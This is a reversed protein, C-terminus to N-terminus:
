DEPEIRTGISIQIDAPLARRTPQDKCPFGAAELAKRATTFAVSQPNASSCQIGEGRNVRMGKDSLESVSMNGIWTTGLITWKDQARLFLDAVQDKFSTIEEGSGVVTFSVKSGAPASRLIEVAADFNSKTIVRKPPPIKGIVTLDRGAQIGGPSNIMTQAPSTGTETQPETRKAIAGRNGRTRTQDVQRNERLDRNPLQTTSSTPSTPTQSRPVPLTPTKISEEPNGGLIWVSVGAWATAVLCIMLMRRAFLVLGPQADAVWPVSILLPIAACAALALLALLM